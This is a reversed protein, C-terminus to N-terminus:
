LISTRHILGGKSCRKLKCAKRIRNPGGFKLKDLCHSCQECDERQRCGDCENCRQRRNPQKSKTQQTSSNIVPPRQPVAVKTTDETAEQTMGASEVDGNDDDDDDDDDDDSFTFTCTDTKADIDIKVLEGLKVSGDLHKSSGDPHMAPVDQVVSGDGELRIHCKNDQSESLLESGSAKQLVTQITRMMDPMKGYFNAKALDRLLKAKSSVSTQNDDSSDSTTGQSCMQSQNASDKTKSQEALSFSYKVAEDYKSCATALLQVYKSNAERVEREYAKTAQRVRGHLSEATELDGTTPSWGTISTSLASTAISMEAKCFTQLAQLLSDTGERSSELLMKSVDKPNISPESTIIEPDNSYTTPNISLKSNRQIKKSTHKKNKQKQKWKRLKYQPTCWAKFTPPTSSNANSTMLNSGIPASQITTSQIPTSQISTEILDKEVSIPQSNFNGNDADDAEKDIGQDAANGDSVEVESNAGSKSGRDHIKSSINASAYTKSDVQSDTTACSNAASTAVADSSKTSRFTNTTNPMVISQSATLKSTSKIVTDYLSALPSDSREDQLNTQKSVTVSTVDTLADGYLMRTSSDNVFSRLFIDRDSQSLSNIHHIQYNTYANYNENSIQEWRESMTGDLNMTVVKKWLKVPAENSSGGTKVLSTAANGKFMENRKKRTSYYDGENLNFANNFSKIDQPHMISEHATAFEDIHVDEEGSLANSEEFVDKPEGRKEKRWRYFSETGGTIEQYELYELYERASAKDQLHKRKEEVRINTKNNFYSPLKKYASYLKYEKPHKSRLHLVLGDSSPIYKSCHPCIESPNFAKYLDDKHRMRMHYHLNIPNSCVKRCVTCTLSEQNSVQDTEENLTEENEKMAEDEVVNDETTVEEVLSPETTSEEVVDDETAGDEVSKDEVPKEEITKDKMEENAKSSEMKIDGITSDLQPKEKQEVAQSMKHIFSVLEKTVQFNLESAQDEPLLGMNDM